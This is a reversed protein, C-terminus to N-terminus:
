RAQILVLTAADDATTMHNPIDVSWAQEDVCTLTIVTGAVGGITATAGVFKMADHATTDAICTAHTITQPVGMGTDVVDSNLPITGFFGDADTATVINLGATATIGLIIKFKLGAAAAPLTIQRAAHNVFVTSGSESALLVRDVTTTIQPELFTTATLALSIAGVSTLNANVYNKAIDDAIVVMSKAPGGTLSAAISEMVEQEKNSNTVLTIKDFGGGGAVAAASQFYLDIALDTSHVAGRFNDATNMYASNDATKIYIFKSM